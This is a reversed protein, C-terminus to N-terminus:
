KFWIPFIFAQIFIVVFALWGLIIPIVDKGFYDCIFKPKFILIIPFVSLAFMHFTDEISILKLLYGILPVFIAVIIALIRNM